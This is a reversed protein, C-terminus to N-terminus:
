NMSDIAEDIKIRTIVYGDNATLMGKVEVVADVIFLELADQTMVDNVDISLVTDVPVEESETQTVVVTLLNQDVATIAGKVEVDNDRDHDNSRELKVVVPTFEGLDNVVGKVELEVGATIMEATGHKLM